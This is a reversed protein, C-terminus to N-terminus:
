GGIMSMSELVHNKQASLREAEFGDRPKLHIIERMKEALKGHTTGQRIYDRVSFVGNDYLCNKIEGRATIRLRNCTNCFSRTFAAIIGIKGQHDPIKYETTTAGSEQPLRIMDPYTEELVNKIDKASLTEHRFRGMGNFPMEEIFRVSVPHDKTILSLPLIDQENIGSMIVANIKVRFGQSVMAELSEMTKKFDNRRTIQAFREEDLSDLSLNIDLIGLAKLSDLHKKILVGNSTIHISDFQGQERTKELLYMFDKRVFPEGGTFRVKRFGIEGLVNTLFLIEECTLLNRINEYVIGKEPMCYHCRLNCRDTVAIRVYDIKRNFSDTLVRAHNYPRCISVLLFFKVM